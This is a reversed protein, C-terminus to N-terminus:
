GGANVLSRRLQALAFVAAEEPTAGVVSGAEAGAADRWTARACNYKEIRRVDFAFGADKFEAEVRPLRPFARGDADYGGDGHFRGAAAEFSGGALVRGRPGGTETGAEKRFDHLIRCDDLSSM